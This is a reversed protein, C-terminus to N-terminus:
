NVRSICFDALDMLAQLSETHAIPSLAAKALNSYAKAETIASDIAGTSRILHVAHALDNDTQLTPDLARDWFSQDMESGRRRAIIVPLTMKGERFDDGISKGIISATGGYDLVDDIIQFALGLNKGFKALANSSELNNSASLAGTRAAAEFLAATKAEIIALYEETPLNKNGHTTLQHVEGQAIVTSAHSLIGLIELNGAEVMLTFAKAFLFDGVLISPANGWVSKAAPKGRRMPSDDVVDDHLLTATHILEVAAALVYTASTTGGVCKAAAVTILPRLRKGGSSVIYNALDPITKIPSNTRETLIREVVQMDENFLSQLDLTTARPSTLSAQSVPM